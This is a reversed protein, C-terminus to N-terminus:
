CRTRPPRPRGERTLDGAGIHVRDHLEASLHQEVLDHPVEEEVVEDGGVQALQEQGPLQLQRQGVPRGLTLRPEPLVGTAAGVFLVRIAGRM